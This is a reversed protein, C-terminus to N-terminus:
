NTSSGYFRFNAYNLYNISLREWIRNLIELNLDATVNAEKGKQLVMAANRSMDTIKDLNRMSTEIKPHLKDKM